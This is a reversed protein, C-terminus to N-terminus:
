SAISEDSGADARAVGCDELSAVHEALHVAGITRASSKIAHLVKQSADPKKSPSVAKLHEISRLADAEFARLFEEKFTDLGFLEILQNIREIDLVPARENKTEPHVTRAAKAANGAQRALLGRLDEVDVPKTLVEVMGASLCRDRTEKSIDATLGAIAAATEPAAFSLYTKCVEVGDQGPMNVDLIAIDANGELLRELADDG